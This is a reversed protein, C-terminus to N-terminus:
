FLEGEEDSDSPYKMTVDGPGDVLKGTIPIFGPQQNQAELFQAFFPKQVQNNPQM